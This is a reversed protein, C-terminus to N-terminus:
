MRREHGGEAVAAAAFVALSMRTSVQDCVLRTCRLGSIRLSSDRTGLCSQKGMLLPPSPMVFGLDMALAAKRPEQARHNWGQFFVMSAALLSPARAGILVFREACRRLWQLSIQVGTSCRGAGSDSPPSLRPRSFHRM